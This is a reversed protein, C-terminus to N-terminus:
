GGPYPYTVGHHARSAAVFPTYAALAVPDDLIVHYTGTTGVQSDWYLVGTAGLDVCKQSYAAIWAARGSGDTDSPVVGTGFEGIGFPLDPHMAKTADHVGQVIAAPNSYYGGSMGGNYPDWWAEDWYHTGDPRLGPHWDDIDRGSAAALTWSMLIGVLRIDTRGIADLADALDRQRQNWTASWDFYASSNLPYDNEPEHAYAAWVLRGDDPKAQAWATFDPLSWDKWSHCIAVQPPTASLLHGVNGSTWNGVGGPNFTRVAAMGGYAPQSENDFKDYWAQTNAPAKVSAGFRPYTTPAPADDFPRTQGGPGRWAGDQAIWAGM